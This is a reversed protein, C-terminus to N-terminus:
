INKWAKELAKVGSTMEKESLNSYGFVITKSAMNECYRISYESLGYVRVGEKKAMEVLYDESLETKIRVLFHLGSEEGTIQVKNVLDSNAILSILMDRKQKYNTKMRNLHKEYEGSDIFRALVLQNISPVSCSYFSYSKRYLNVLKDPLVLFSVRFGPGLTKSFSNMYIVNDLKDLGKMAPIPNGFFRFESDYDDEIIYRGNTKNAWKLLDLRRSISTVIGKPFQHSPTTHVIDAKSTELLKVDLGEEDLGITKVKVGYAKYLLYNKMYSPDEVAYTKDRGLLLVLLSILNESGSGIVIQEPAAEIGRYAYLIEAIKKRLEFNGFIDGRNINDKFKDLIIDREIKALKQYPFNVQDVQNTYFDCLYQTKKPHSITGKQTKSIKNPLDLNTMVFYGVRDVSKIYGEALLQSYATEITTQSIKLHNALKRKSPLKENKKLEGIEIGKKINQYLQEYLAIQSNKDLFFTLM